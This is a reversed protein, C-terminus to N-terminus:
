KGEQAALWEDVDSLRWRLSGAVQIAQPGRGNLRWARITAPRVNLYNALQGINMLPAPPTNSM